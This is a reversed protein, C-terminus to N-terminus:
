VRFFKKLAYLMYLLINETTSIFNTSKSTVFHKSNYTIDKVYNLKKEQKLRHDIIRQKRRKIKAATNM